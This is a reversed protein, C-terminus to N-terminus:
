MLQSNEGEWESAFVTAKERLTASVVRQWIAGGFDAVGVEEVKAEWEEVGVNVELLGPM